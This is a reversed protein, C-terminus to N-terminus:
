LNRLVGTAIGLVQSLSEEAAPVLFPHAPTRVGGHEVLHGYFAETDGAIVYYSGPIEGPEVHIADRLKGTRVPVRDKAARAVLDAGSRAVADMEVPLKAAIRPLRSEWSM